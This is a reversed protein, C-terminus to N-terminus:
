QRSDLLIYIKEGGGQSVRKKKRSKGEREREGGCRGAGRERERDCVCVREREKEREGRECVSERVSEERVDGEGMYGVLEAAAGAQGEGAAM